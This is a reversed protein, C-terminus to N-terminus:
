PEIREFHSSGKSNRCYTTKSSDQYEKKTKLLGRYRYLFSLPIKKSKEVDLEELKGGLIEMLEEYVINIIHERQSLGAKPKQSGARKKIKESLEFVLKVNVDSGLLARQIDKTTTNLTDKDIYGARAIKRLSDRLSKGLNELAM